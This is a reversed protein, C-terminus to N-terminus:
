CWFGSFPRSVHWSHDATVLIMEFRDARYGARSLHKVLVTKPGQQCLSVRRM